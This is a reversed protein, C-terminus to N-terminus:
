VQVRQEAHVREDQGEDEKLEQKTYVSTRSRVGEYIPTAGSPDVTSPPLSPPPSASLVSLFSAFSSPSLSLVFDRPRLSGSCYASPSVLPYKLSLRNLFHIM